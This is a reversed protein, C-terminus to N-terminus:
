YNDMEPMEYDPVDRKLLFRYLNKTVNTLTRDDRTVNILRDHYMMRFMFGHVDQISFDDPDGEHEKWLEELHHYYLSAKPKAKERPKEPYMAILSERPGLDSCIVETSDDKDLYKELWDHNYMIKVGQLAVKRESDDYSFKKCHRTIIMSVNSRTCERKLYLAAHIHREHGTKETVVHYHSCIRKVLKQFGELEIDTVGNIPRLTIAYTSFKSM